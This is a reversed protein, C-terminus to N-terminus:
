CFILLLNGSFAILLLNKNEKLNSKCLEQKLFSGTRASFLIPLGATGVLGATNGRGAL